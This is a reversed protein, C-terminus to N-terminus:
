RMEQMCIGVLCWPTVAASKEFYEGSSRKERGGKLGSCAPIPLMLIGGSGFGLCSMVHCRDVWDWPVPLKARPPPPEKIVGPSLELHKKKKKKEQNLYRYLTGVRLILILRPRCNFPRTITLSKLCMQLGERVMVRSGLIYTYSAGCIPGIM